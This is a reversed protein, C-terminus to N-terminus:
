NDDARVQALRGGMTDHSRPLCKQDLVTIEVSGCDLPDGALGTDGTEIPSLMLAQRKSGPGVIGMLTLKNSGDAAVHRTLHHQSTEHTTSNLKM